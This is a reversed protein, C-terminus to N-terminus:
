LVRVCGKASAADEAGEEDQTSAWLFINKDMAGSAFMKGSPQVAVSRIGGAHGECLSVSCYSIDPCFCLCTLSPVVALRNGVLKGLCVCTCVRVFPATAIPAAAESSRCPEPFAIPM